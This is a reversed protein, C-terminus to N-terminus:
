VKFTSYCVLCSCFNTMPEDASRTQMQYLVCKREGCKYCKYADTTAVNEKRHQAIRKKTIEKEWNKPHLEHPSLFAISQADIEDNVIANLLYKNKLRGNTDLNDLLENLKDYYIPKLYKESVDNSFVYVLSYEYLGAEIRSAIEVNYVVNVLKEITESRNITDNLDDFLKVDIEKSINTLCKADIHDSVSSGNDYYDIYETFNDLNIKNYDM